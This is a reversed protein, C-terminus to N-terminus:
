HGCGLPNHLQAIRRCAHHRRIRPSATSHRLNAEFNGYIGDGHEQWTSQAPASLFRFRPRIICVYLVIPATRHNRAILLPQQRLRGVCLSRDTLVVPEAQVGERRDVAPEGRSAGDHKWPKGGVDARAYLDASGTGSDVQRFATM